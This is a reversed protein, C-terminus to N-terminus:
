NLTEKISGCTLMATGFYPNKIAKEYSLWSAKKMPCYIIYVPDSTLKVAKALAVMNASFNAFHERQHVIEKIESIQTVDKLLGNRSEDPLDNKNIERAINVFEEAKSGALRANGQVLANKIDYYSHLLQSLQSQKIDQAFSHQVSLASLIVAILLIKKM